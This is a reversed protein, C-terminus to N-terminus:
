VAYIHWLFHRGKQENLPSAMLCGSRYKEHNAENNAEMRIQRLMEVEDAVADGAPRPKDAQTPRPARSAAVGMAARVREIEDLLKHREELDKQNFRALMAERQANTAVTHAALRSGLQDELRLLDGVVQAAETDEPLAIGRAVEADVQHTRRGSGGKKSEGRDQQAGPGVRQSAGAERSQQLEQQVRPTIVPQHPKYGPESRMWGNWPM